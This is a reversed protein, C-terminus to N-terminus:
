ITKLRSFGSAPSLPIKTGMKVEYATDKAAAFIIRLSTAQSDANIL